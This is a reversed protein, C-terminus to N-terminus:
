GEVEALVALERVAVRDGGSIEDVAPVAGHGLLAVVRAQEPDDRAVLVDGRALRRLHAAEGFDVVEREVHRQALPGAVERAEDRQPREPADVLLDDCGAAFVRPRQLWVREDAAPRGAYHRPRRTLRHVELRHRCPEAALWAGDRM